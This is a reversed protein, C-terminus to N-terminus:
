ICLLGLQYGLFRRFLFLDLLSRSSKDRKYLKQVLLNKFLNWVWCGVQQPYCIDLM